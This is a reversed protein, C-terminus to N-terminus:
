TRSAFAVSCLWPAGRVAVTASSTLDRARKTPPTFPVRAVTLLCLFLWCVATPRPNHGGAPCFPLGLSKVLPLTDGNEPEEKEFSSGCPTPARLGWGSGRLPVALFGSEGGQLLFIIEEGEFAAWGQLRAAKEWKEELARRGFTGIKRGKRRDRQGQCGRLSGIYYPHRCMFKACLSRLNRQKESIDLM